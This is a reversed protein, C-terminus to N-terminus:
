TATTSAGTAAATGSTTATPTVVILAMRTLRSLRAPLSRVSPLTKCTKLAGIQWFFTGQLHKHRTSATGAEGLTQLLARPLFLLALFSLAFDLSLQLFRCSAG